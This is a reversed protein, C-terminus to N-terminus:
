PMLLRVIFDSVDGMDVLGNGNFDGCGCDPGGYIACDVFFQIDVGNVAYNHDMDGLLFCLCQCWLDDYTGDPSSVGLQSCWYGTSM